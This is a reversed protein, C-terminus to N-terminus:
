FGVNLGFSVTAQNPRAFRIGGGYEPDIGENNATWLLINNINSQLRVQQVGLKRTISSPFSYSLSIDRMKIYSADLVNIDGQTYYSLNRRASSTASLPVYSPVNTLAEDGPQKWRLLFDPHINGGFPGVASARYENTLRGFYFTNVDNRMVHGFSFIAQATLTFQKYSFSNSLGGTWKPQTTGSFLVDNIQPISTGSTAKTTTGDAKRVKPDGLNDLGAFQYAWMAFADYGNVFQQEIRGAATTIPTAPNLEVIKNKNYAFNFNTSWRFALSQINITNLSLEVGKNELKGVNGTVNAYGTLFNLVVNGLLDNTVKHYLDVSGAIKNKLIGFDLGLNKTATREWTLARNAPTSVNLTPVGPTFANNATLLIDSSASVGPPPANGAIGYTIRLALTPLWEVKNMFHEQSVAWRGGVSWVPKNQASKDLGFLNSQDARVSSNITYKGNYTYGVNGFYSTFRTISEGTSSFSIDPYSISGGIIRNTIGATLKAWDIYSVSRLLRNDWGKARSTSSGSRQEQAEQGALVTLSHLGDKWSNDYNLLNRITWNQSFGNVISYDGGTAPFNYVPVGGPSSPNQATSLLTTRVSYAHQDAYSESKSTGRAFGYTGDFRLGKFLKATVGVQNRSSLNNAKTWGLELEDLANYNLNIRSRTQYDLRGVDSYGLLSPTSINSGSADRFLQYPLFTLDRGGYAAKGSTVGYNLNSNIRITVFNGVSWEQNLQMQYRKDQEGINNSVTNAFNGSGYFNYKAGGGQVNITHNMNMANRYWLDLIQQKNDLAALSDLSARKQAENILGRTRNYLIQEHPALGSSTAAGVTAWPFAAPDFIEEAIRIYDASRLNPVYDLDPKGTFNVLGRYSTTVRNNRQGKKSTVIIVGNAARSGWISAATADKLVTIDEIDDPNITNFNEIPLGDVVYLPGANVGTNVGTGTPITTLGRILVPAITAPAGPIRTNNLVLGPILGDLRQLINMSTTRDAVIKMDPKAFSGASREKSLTQYGTNVTVIVEAGVAVRLTLRIISLDRKGNVPMEYTEVNVGSFVLTAREDVGRLVFEGKTDTSTGRNSGKITVTVGVLPEGQTNVTRGQVDIPPLAVSSEASPIVNPVKTIFVTRGQISYKLPLGKLVETLATELPTQRFSISVPPLGHIDEEWYSFVYGTQKKFVSLLNEVKVSKGSYTVNQADTRASVQLIAALLFMITLKM